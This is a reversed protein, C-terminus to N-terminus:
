KLYTMKMSSVFKGAALRYVYVGSALNKSTFKRTYYGAKMKESVLLDIKRGSLDYVTMEVFCEEPISFSINTEPNFPNPYNPNLLFRVPQKIEAIGNLVHYEFNGNYDIQKLRYAYSGSELNRDEFSYEIPVNSNGNGKITGTKEWVSEVKEKREVEFCSNNIEVSTQWKLVANNERVSVTFSSLSVPLTTEHSNPNLLAANNIYYESGTTDYYECVMVIYSTSNELNTITLNGADTVAASNYVCFWGSNGIQSGNGFVSSASYTSNNVPAPTGTSGTKMFVCRGNGNGEIWDITLNTSGVNLFNINSAQNPLVTTQNATNASSSSINYAPSVSSGYECVMARYTTNQSLGTVTVSTGTGSYVCYWGSSGVQSGNGFNPSSNYVVGNVPAPSGASGQYLFVACNNGSGRTWSIKFKVISVKSFTIGSAQVQPTIAASITNSHVSQGYSNEARVRYYYTGGSLGTVSYSLTNGADLNNFGTVFSSFDPTLSVDLRYKTANSVSTWNATFSSISIDTAALATPASLPNLGCVALIVTRSNGSVTKTFRISTLVKFMDNNTLTVYCDYLRPNNTTTGDIDDYRDHYAAGYNRANVRGINHIAYGTGNFWDSVSFSYDAYTSDNFNLRVTFSSSGEASSALIALRQYSQPNTLSLTGTANTNSLFLVNNGSYPQLLYTIATNNVSTILRDAPLGGEPATSQNYNGRFDTSYMVHGAYANDGDFIINTTNYAQNTGPGGNAIMDYNFGTVTVQSYNQSYMKGTLFVCFIIIFIAFIQKM